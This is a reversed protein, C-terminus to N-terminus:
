TVERSGFDFHPWRGLNGDPVGLIVASAKQYSFSCQITVSESVPLFPIFAVTTRNKKKPMFLRRNQMLGLSLPM